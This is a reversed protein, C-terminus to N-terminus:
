DWKDLLAVAEAEALLEQQHGELAQVLASTVPEACSALSAPLSARVGFLAAHQTCFERAAERAALV